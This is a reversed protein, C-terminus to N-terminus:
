ARPAPPHPTDGGAGASGRGSDAQHHLGGSRAAPGVGQRVRRRAGVPLDGPHGAADPDAKIARCVDFGDVEPMMVDLLVLDPRARRVIDLASRGDRAALVRHGTGQLTRVLVQLNVPSDDVVLVTASPPTLAVDAARSTMAALVRRVRAHRGARAPADFDFSQVLGGIRRGLAPDGGEGSMLEQAIAELDMVAGLEIAEGLRAALARRSVAPGAPPEPPADAQPSSVFRVGLHKQMAAFLAATRVPKPLYDVCGSDLAATRTDGFASATVAIVPIDATAPDAQLRRTAEFGDLDAMKLDMFVVNPRNTQTLAIAELGGAASIVRVGASELLAALIRRNVTSDDAVLALVDEGEALRADLPPAALDADSEGGTM